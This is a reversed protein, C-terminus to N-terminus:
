HNIIKLNPVRSFDKTNNTVVAADNYLAISAILEDFQGIPRGNSKLYASLKGFIIFIEDTFDLYDFKELFKDIKDLENITQRSRFAGKHLELINVFTTTILEDKDEIEELFRIAGKKESLLDILFTTDLIIM